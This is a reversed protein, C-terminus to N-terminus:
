PRRPGETGAAELPLGVILEDVTRSEIVAAAGGRRRRSRARPPADDATAGGIRRRRGPGSRGPARRPRDRASPDHRRRPRHRPRARGNRRPRRGPCPRVSGADGGRRPARRDPRGPERLEPDDRGLRALGLDRSRRVAGPDGEGGDVPKGLVMAELEAPDLVAVQEASATVPFSVRQGVIVADGVDIQTSDPVLQHDAAVAATVQTEAIASVPASDVTVFTGSASLGLAFTAVEQGVLTEPPVTPVPESLQGTAPFVTAGGASQAPDAMAEQFAEQLSANLAAVAADVDEQTVRTFEKRDGGTTAAPNTVKLFLGNEGRPVRDITNPDVNGDPGGEVATVKVSARAPFITLGVLEARPVTITVLTRFRVNAGTSVLSGAVIRNSSTPDLNEFRVTGTAKTLEVRKGTAPFTDDVAVPVTM